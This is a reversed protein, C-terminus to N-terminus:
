GSPTRERTWLVRVTGGVSLEVDQNSRFAVAAAPELIMTASERTVVVGLAASVGPVTGGSRGTEKVAVVALQPVLLVRAVRVRGAATLGYTLLADDRVGVGTLSAGILGGVWVQPGAVPYYTGSLTGLGSSWQRGSTQIWAYSASADLRPSLTGVAELALSNVGVDTLNAFSGGLSAGTGGPGHYFTQAVVPCAFGLAVPLAVAVVLRRISRLM